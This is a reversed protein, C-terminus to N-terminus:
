MAEFYKGVLYKKIVTPFGTAKCLPLRDTEKVLHDSNADGPSLHPSRM